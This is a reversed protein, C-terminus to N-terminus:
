FCSWYQNSWINFGRNNNGSTIKEQVIWEIDVNRMTWFQRVNAMCGNDFPFVEEPLEQLYSIKRRKSVEWTTQNTLMLYSHFVWLGFPLFFMVFLVVSVVLALGNTYFWDSITQTSTFGDLEMVFAWAIIFSQIALYLWFVFHNKQGVCGGIFFCHHDYRSV